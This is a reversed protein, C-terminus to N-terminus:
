FVSGGIKQDFFQFYLKIIVVIVLIEFLTFYSSKLIDFTFLRVMSKGIITHMHTTFPAIGILIWKLILFFISILYFIFHNEVL